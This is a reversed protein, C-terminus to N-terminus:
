DTKKVPKIYLLLFSFLSFFSVGALRYLMTEFMFSFIIMFIFCGYLLNKDMIAIYIMSVFITLFIVSGILGNELLVELFQNHVNYREKIMVEEGIKNYEKVLDSRVDGIGVGLLLNNKAIKLSANWIILRPETKKEPETQEKSITNFLSSVRQNKIILPILAIVIVLISIWAFKLKNLEKFKRVLYVPVLILSSLIVARSSLFYISIILLIGVILWMYRIITKLSNDFWSEFSILASLLVYLAIYSPHQSVTLEAAYFYSLWWFEPPHPNFTWIGDQFHLSRYLAFCFSFLMYIFTGAAFIRLLIKIRNKIMEGPFVMVLPFLVLSLRGFLNLLGMKLDASYILGAAQWFYYLIFLIFLIKYAPKIDFYLRRIRTSNELLWFLLWMIMFPPLYQVHIPLIVITLAASLFSLYENKIINTFQMRFIRNNM